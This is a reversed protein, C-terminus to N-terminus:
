DPYFVNESSDPANAKLRGIIYREADLFHFTEKDEIEPTPEGNEDLVRSYAAKQELYGELDDFVLIENRKHAGYVRDIGVEVDKIDPAMVPLGPAQAGDVLGGAAFEQRWQGESKSGGVCLPVMPEGKLLKAAHEAATRGGALYERYAFLRGTPAGDDRLEGAYFVAATHIGGFDLGLYRPWAPPLAFRPVKCTTEDFSDYIQGAPRALIARYFMDFKWSPLDRKARAMEAPPFSPNTTSDFQAVDIDSDGAKWRDWLKQKLWGLDYPTTTVLVRGLHISLRRLIAEWSGLRFKKQGAEDLWAAKATASELSEPDQAHGFFITTPSQDWAPGFTRRAGDASFTFRRAPSAIYHGLGLMDEFLRRLTPLAKLELLPFTPTVVMYDGPGRRQIERYLWHPGFTTKGSQTGALVCVFRRESQWARWQGSHFHLRMGGPVLEVLDHAM